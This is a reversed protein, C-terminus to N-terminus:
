FNFLFYHNFTLFLFYGIIFGKFLYLIALYERAIAYFKYYYITRSTSISINLRLLKSLIFVRLAHYDSTIVMFSNGILDKSYLLNEKTSISNEECIIDKNNIGKSILYNKMASAESIIEDKGKGGSVIMKCSKRQYMSIAVDLRQMLLPSIRNGDLLGCGLIVLNEKEKPKNLIPLYIQFFLFIPITMELFFRLEKTYHVFPECYYILTLILAFLFSYFHENGKEYKKLIYVNILFVFILLIM